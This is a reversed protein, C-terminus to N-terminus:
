PLQQVTEPASLRADKLLLMLEAASPSMGYAKSQQYPQLSSSCMHCILKTVHKTSRGCIVSRPLSAIMTYLAPELKFIHLNRFATNHNGADSCNRLCM